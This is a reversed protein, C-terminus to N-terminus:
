NPLKELNTDADPMLEPTILTKGLKREVTRPRKGFRYPWVHCRTSHVGDCPCYKVYKSSGGSCDLCQLRIAKLPNYVKM